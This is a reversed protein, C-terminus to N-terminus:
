CRIIPFHLYFDFVAAHSSVLWVGTRRSVQYESGIGTRVDAEFPRASAHEFDADVAAKREGLLM